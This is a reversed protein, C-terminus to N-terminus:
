EGLYNTLSQNPLFVGRVQAGAIRDRIPTAGPLRLLIERLSLQAWDTQSLLSHRAKDPHIVIGDPRCKMGNAQLSEHVEENIRAQEIVQAVTRNDYVIREVDTTADGKLIPLRITALMLTELLKVEDELFDGQQINKWEALYEGVLRNLEAVPNDDCVALMSLPVALSQVFRPDVGAVPKVHKILAKSKLSAWLCYGFVRVRLDELREPDPLKPARTPDKVTEVILSRYYDPARRMGLEIAIILFMHFIRYTINEHSSTGKSIMGGRSASRFLREELNKRHNGSECEDILSLVANNGIDQRIGAESSGAGEYRRALGGGIKEFFLTLLTKGSGQPGTVRLHPRWDWVSQVIQAFLWGVIIVTDFRGHLGWQNLEMLVEEIVKLGKGKDMDEACKIIAELDGWGAGPQRDTIITKSWRHNM